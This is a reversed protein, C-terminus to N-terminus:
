EIEEIQAKVKAAEARMEAARRPFRKDESIKQLFEYRTKLNTLPERAREGRLDSSARYYAVLVCWLAVFLLLLRLGIQLRIRKM